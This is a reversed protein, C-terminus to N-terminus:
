TLLADIAISKVTNWLSKMVLKGKGQVLRNRRRDDSEASFQNARTLVLRNEINRPYNVELIAEVTTLSCLDDSATHTLTSSTEMLGIDRLFEQQIVDVTVAIHLM